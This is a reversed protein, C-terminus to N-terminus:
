GQWGMARAVEGMTIFDSRVAKVSFKEMKQGEPLNHVGVYIKLNKMAARGKLTKYPMMGRITRRVIRDPQKPTFPGHQPSGRQKNEIYNRVIQSPNGTLIIKEANMITVEDGALLRKATHSALRGLIANKGDIIM